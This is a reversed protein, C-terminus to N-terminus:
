NLYTIFPDLHYAMAWVSLMLVNQFLRQRLFKICVSFVKFTAVNVILSGTILFFSFFDPLVM